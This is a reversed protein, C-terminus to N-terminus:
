CVPQRGAVVRRVGRSRRFGSHSPCFELEVGLQPMVVPRYAVQGTTADVDLLNQYGLDTARVFQGTERDLQWLIGLKGMTFVSPRGDVDVLVREFVEDMDHSEGPIHQYYWQMEGTDPDLALTSSTYL